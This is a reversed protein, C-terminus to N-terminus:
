PRVRRQNNGQGEQRQGQNGSERRQRLKEEEKKRNERWYRDLNTAHKYQQEIKTLSRKTEILKRRITRNM